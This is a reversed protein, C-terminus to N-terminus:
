VMGNLIDPFHPDILTLNIGAGLPVPNTADGTEFFTKYNAPTPSQKVEDVPDVFVLPFKALATKLQM